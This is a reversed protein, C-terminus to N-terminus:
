YSQVQITWGNAQCAQQIPGGSDWSVLFSTKEKNRIVNFATGEKYKRGEKIRIRDKDKIDKFEVEKWAM